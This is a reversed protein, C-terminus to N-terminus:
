PMSEKICEWAFGSAVEDLSFQTWALEHMWQTRDPCIPGSELDHTTVPWAMSGEDMAVTPVGALVADVGATSNWTVALQAGSLDDELTCTSRAAGRPFSPDDLMSPHPRYMVAYGKARLADTVEQAWAIVSRGMSELALDGECQGMVLAYAGESWPREFAFYRKWREGGDNVCAYRGHRGLGSWGCSAWRMRDGIHGREMLLVPCRAQRGIRWGWCVVFDADVNLVDHRREVAIGHKELASAMAGCWAHHHAHRMVVAAKVSVVQWSHDIHM